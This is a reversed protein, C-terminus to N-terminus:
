KVNVLHPHSVGRESSIGTSKVAGIGLLIGRRSQGQGWAFHEPEPFLVETPRFRDTIALSKM